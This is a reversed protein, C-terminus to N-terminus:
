LYLITFAIFINHPSYKELRSQQWVFDDKRFRRYRKQLASYRASFLIRYEINHLFPKRRGINELPNSQIDSSM